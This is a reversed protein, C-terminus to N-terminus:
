KNQLLLRWVTSLLPFLAYLFVVLVVKHKLAETCWNLQQEQATTDFRQTIDSTVTVKIESRQGDFELWNMTSDCRVNAGFKFVNGRPMRMINHKCHSPHRWFLPSDEDFQLPIWCKPAMVKFAHDGKTKLRSRQGVLLGKEWSRGTVHPQLLDRIHAPAQGHLVRETIVLVKFDTNPPPALPFADWWRCNPKMDLILSYQRQTWTRNTNVHHSLRVRNM